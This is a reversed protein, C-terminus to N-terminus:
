LIWYDLLRPTVTYVSMFIDQVDCRYTKSRGRRQGAADDESDSQSESRSRLRALLWSGRSDKRQLRPSLRSSPKVCADASSQLCVAVRTYTM